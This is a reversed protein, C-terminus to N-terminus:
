SLINEEIWRRIEANVRYLKSSNLSGGQEEVARVLMERPPQKELDGTVSGNRKVTYLVLSPTNEYVDVAFTYCLSRNINAQEHDIDYDWNLNQRVKEVDM